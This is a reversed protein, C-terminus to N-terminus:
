RTQDVHVPPHLLHNLLVARDLSGHQTRIHLVNFANIDASGGPERLDYTYPWTCYVTFFFFSQFPGKTPGAPLPSTGYCLRSNM